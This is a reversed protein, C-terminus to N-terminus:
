FAFKVGLLFDWYGFFDSGGGPYGVGGLTFNTEAGLGVNKVLWYDLGGGFRFGAGGGTGNYLPNGGGATYIGV